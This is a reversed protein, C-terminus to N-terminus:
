DALNACVQLESLESPMWNQSHSRRSHRSEVKSKSEIVSKSLEPHHSLKPSLHKTVTVASEPCLKTDCTKGSGIKQNASNEFCLANLPFRIDKSAKYSEHRMKSQSPDLKTRKKSL